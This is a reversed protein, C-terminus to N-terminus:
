WVLIPEWVLITIGTLTHCNKAYPYYCMYIYILRAEMVGLIRLIPHHHEVGLASALHSSPETGLTKITVVTNEIDKPGM